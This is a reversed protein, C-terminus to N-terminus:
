HPDRHRADSQHTQRDPTLPLSLVYIADLFDSTPSHTNHKFLDFNYDGLLYSNEAHMLDLIKNICEVFISCNGHPRYIVGIIM